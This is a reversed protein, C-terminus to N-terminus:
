TEEEEEMDTRPSPLSTQNACCQRALVLKSVAEREGGGIAEGEGIGGYGGGKEEDVEM